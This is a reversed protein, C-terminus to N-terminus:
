RDEEELARLRAAWRPCRTYQCPASQADAEVQRIWAQGAPTDAPEIIAEALQRTTPRKHACRIRLIKVGDRIERKTHSTGSGIWGHHPAPPAVHTDRKPYTKSAAM